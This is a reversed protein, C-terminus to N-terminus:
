ILRVESLRANEKIHVGNESVHIHTFLPNQSETIIETPHIVGNKLAANWIQLLIGGDELKVGENFEIRYLGQPLEWWGYKDDEMRKEPDIWDIKGESYESGGFDLSGATGIKGIRNVTLYAVNKESPFQTPEHIINQLIAKLQDRKLM